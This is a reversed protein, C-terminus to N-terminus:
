VHGLHSSSSSSSYDVVQVVQGCLVQARCVQNFLALYLSVLPYENFSALIWLGDGNEDPSAGLTHDVLGVPRKVICQHYHFIHKLMRVNNCAASGWFCVDRGLKPLPCTALFAPRLQRHLFESFCQILYREIQCFICAHIWDVCHCLKTCLLALAGLPCANVHSVSNDGVHVLLIDQ